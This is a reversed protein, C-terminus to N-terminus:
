YPRVCIIGPIMQFDRINKTFLTHGHELATAAILADAIELGHSLRYSDMLELAVQSISASLPVIATTVLFQRVRGRDRANRCGQILEM